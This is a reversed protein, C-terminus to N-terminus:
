KSQSEVIRKEMLDNKITVTLRQEAMDRSTGSKKKENIVGRLDLERDDFHQIVSEQKKSQQQLNRMRPPLQYMPAQSNSRTEFRKAHRINQVEKLIPDKGHSFNPASSSKHLHDTQYFKGQGTMKQGIRNMRPAAFDRRETLLPYGGSNIPFCSAARRPASGRLQQRVFSSSIAPAGMGKRVVHISSRGRGGRGRFPPLRSSKKGAGGSKGKQGSVLKAVHKNRDNPVGKVVTVGNNDTEIRACHPISKIYLELSKFGLKELPIDSM